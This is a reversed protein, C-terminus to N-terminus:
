SIGRCFLITMIAFMGVHVWKDLWLKDLWGDDPFASGPLTLLIVSIIFWGIAPLFYRYQNKM